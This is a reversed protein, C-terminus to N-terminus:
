FKSQNCKPRLAVSFVISLSYINIYNSNWTTFNDHAIIQSFIHVVHLTIHYSPIAFFFIYVRCSLLNIIIQSWKIVIIVIIIIKSSLSLNYLINYKLVPVLTCHFIALSHPYDHFNALSYYIVSPPQCM